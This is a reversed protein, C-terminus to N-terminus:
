CGPTSILDLKSVIEAWPFFVLIVSFFFLNFPCILNAGCDEYTRKVTATEATFRRPQAWIFNEIRGWSSVSFALKKTASWPDTKCIAVSWCMEQM